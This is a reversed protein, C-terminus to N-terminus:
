QYIINNKKCYLIFSDFLTLNMKEDIVAVVKEDKDYIFLNQRNWVIQTKVKVGQIYTVYSDKYTYKKGFNVLESLFRYTDKANGKYYEVEYANDVWSEGYKHNGWLSFTDDPITDASNEIIKWHSLYFTSQYQYVTQLSYVQASVNILFFLGTVFLFLKKM